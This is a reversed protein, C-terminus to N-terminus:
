RFDNELAGPACDIAALVARPTSAAYTRVQETM